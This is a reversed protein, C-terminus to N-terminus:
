SLTIFITNGKVQRKVQVKGANGPKQLTLCFRLLELSFKSTSINNGNKDRFAVRVQDFIMKVDSTGQLHYNGNLAKEEMWIEIVDSLAMSQGPIETSMRLDTDAALDFEIAILRGNEVIDTFKSQLVNLFDEMTADVARNILRGFDTTNFKESMAVKNVLSTGTSADYGALIVNVSNGTGSYQKQVDVEIYIEAGSFEIIQTKIDTLNESTFAQRAETEKLKAVFDITSFGRTDFAEKIKAIALRRDGDMDLVKRVDEKDRTFPIVMITPQVIANKPATTTGDAANQGQLQVLCSLSLLWILQKM